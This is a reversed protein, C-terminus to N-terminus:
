LSGVALPSSHVRDQRFGILVERNVGWGQSTWRCPNSSSVSPPPDGTQSGGSATTSAEVDEPPCPQARRM